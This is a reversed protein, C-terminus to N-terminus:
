QCEEKLCSMTVGKGGELTQSPILVGRGSWDSWRITCGVGLKAGKRKEM